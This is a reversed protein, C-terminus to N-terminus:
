CATGPWRTKQLFPRILVSEWWAAPFQQDASLAETLAEDRTNLIAVYFSTDAFRGLM